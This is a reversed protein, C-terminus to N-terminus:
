KINPYYQNSFMKSTTVKNINNCKLMKILLLYIHGLGEM